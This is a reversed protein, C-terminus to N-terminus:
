RGLMSKRPARASSAAPAPPEIADFPANVPQVASNDHVLAGLRGVFFSHGDAVELNFVPQVVDTAVAGVRATGGLVRVLDGTKLDRAMTWGTGAKWFRHIGTAVIAKDGLEIRLTAAPKNHFAAVVPTFALEGTRPEQSLVRDGVRISEIPRPGDITHVQTGAAFCAHHPLVVPNDVIETYTPKTSPDPATYSYGRQDAWWAQWKDQSNGFDQGTLDNLVGLTRDNVQRANANYAEVAQIDNRLQQRSLEVVQNLAMMQQAIQVDRMAALSQTNMMQQNILAQQQGPNAAQAVMRAAPNGAAAQQQLPGPGAPQISTGQGTMWYIGVGRMATGLNQPSFPDFPVSPDFIRPPLTALLDYTGQEISYQRQINYREGNVFLEAPSNRTKGPRIEYKLPARILGVLLGIVDRPDRRRLTETAAQRVEGTRGFVALMALARSAVPSDIQALVPVAKPQLAGDGGALVAWVTPVARPDSVAALAAEAERKRAENKGRLWGAWRALLPKWHSDAQKQVKAEIREAALRAETVWRGNVKKFGLHKWAAERAPDLQTVAALHARAEAKLGVQECWLALKWNAEASRTLRERRANYEALRAVMAEDAKIERGVDDPREWKGGHAVMGMLGRALANSPDALVAAALHKTRETTMGHQECWLALRVQADADAGAEKRAAEYAARDPSPDDVWGASLVAMAVLLSGTM